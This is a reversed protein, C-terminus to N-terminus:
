PVSLNVPVVPFVFSTNVRSVTEVMQSSIEFVIMSELLMKHEQCHTTRKILLSQM